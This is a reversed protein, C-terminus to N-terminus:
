NMCQDDEKPLRIMPPTSFSYTEQGVTVFGGDALVFALSNIFRREDDSQPNMQILMDPIHTVHM